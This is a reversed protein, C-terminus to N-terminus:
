TGPDEDIMQMVSDIVWGAAVAIAAVVLSSWFDARAITTGDALRSGVSWVVAVGTTLAVVLRSVTIIATKM